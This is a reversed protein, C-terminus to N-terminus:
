LTTHEAPVRFNDRDGHGNKGEVVNFLMQNVEMMM